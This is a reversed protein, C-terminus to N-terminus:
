KLLVILINNIECLLIFYKPHILIISQKFYFEVICIKSPEKLENEDEVFYFNFEECDTHYINEWFLVIIWM